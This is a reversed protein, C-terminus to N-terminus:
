AAVAPKAAGFLYAVADEPLGAKSQEIAERSEEAARKVHKETVELFAEELREAFEENFARKLKGRKVAGNVLARLGTSMPHMGLHAGALAYVDNLLLAAMNQAKKASSNLHVEEAIEFGVLSKVTSHVLRDASLAQFDLLTVRSADWQRFFAISRQQEILRDILSPRVADYHFSALGSKILERYMSIAYRVVNRVVFVYRIDDFSDRVLKIWQEFQAPYQYFSTSLESSLLVRDCGAGRAEEAIQQLYRAVQDFRGEAVNTLLDAHQLKGFQSGEPNAPYLIGAARLAAENERLASQVSTTGTKYHGGHFVLSVM